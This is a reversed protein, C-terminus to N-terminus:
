IGKLGEFWKNVYKSSFEKRLRVTISEAPSLAGGVDTDYFKVAVIYEEYPVNLEEFIFSAYRNGEYDPGKVQAILNKRSLIERDSEAGIVSLESIALSKQYLGENTFVFRISLSYPAGKEAFELGDKVHQKYEGLMHVEIFGAGTPAKIREYDHLVVKLNDCGVLLLLVLIAVCRTIVLYNKEDEDNIEHGLFGIWYRHQTVLHIVGPLILFFM